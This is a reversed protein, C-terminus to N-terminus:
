RVELVICHVQEIAIHEIHIVEDVSEEKWLVRAVWVFTSLALSLSEFGSTPTTRLIPSHDRTIM